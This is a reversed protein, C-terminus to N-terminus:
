ERSGIVRTVGQYAIYTVETGEELEGMLNKPISAEHVGYDKMDMVQCSNESTKAILQGHKRIIEVKEMKEDHPLSMNKKNGTFMGVLDLKTKTHTHKSTVVSKIMEVRFPEGEHAIYDGKKLSGAEVTM